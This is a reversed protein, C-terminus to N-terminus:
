NSFKNSYFNLSNFHITYAPFLSLYTKSLFRFCFFGVYVEVKKTKMKYLETNYKQNKSLLVFIRLEKGSPNFKIYSDNFYKVIGEALSNLKDDSVCHVWM